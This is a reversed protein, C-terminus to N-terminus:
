SFYESSIIFYLVLYLACSSFALDDGVLCFQSKSVLGQKEIIKRVTPIFSTTSWCILLLQMQMDASQNGRTM